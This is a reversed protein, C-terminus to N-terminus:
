FLAYYIGFAIINVVLWFIASGLYDKALFLLKPYYRYSAIEDYNAKSVNLGQEILKDYPILYTNDHNSNNMVNSSLVDSKNFLVKKNTMLFHFVLMITLTSALTYLNDFSTTYISLLILLGIICFLGITYLNKGIIKDQDLLDVEKEQKIVQKLNDSSYKRCKNISSHLEPNDFEFQNVAYTLTNITLVLRVIILFLIIRLTVNLWLNASDVMGLMVVLLTTLPIIISFLKTFLRASESYARNSKNKRLIENKLEKMKLLHLISRDDVYLYKGKSTVYLIYNHDNLLNRIIFMKVTSYCYAFPTEYQNQKKIVIKIREIGQLKLFRSLESYSMKTSVSNHLHELMIMSIISEKASMLCFNSYKSTIRKPGNDSFIRGSIPVRNISLDDAKIRVSLQLILLLLAIFLM